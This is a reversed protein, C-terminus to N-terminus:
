GGREYDAVKTFVTHPIVVRLDNEDGFISSAEAHVGIVKFPQGFVKITKGLPDRGPFLMDALKENVVAM